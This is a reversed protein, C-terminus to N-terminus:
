FVCNLLVDTALVKLSAATFAVVLRYRHGAALGSVTVLVDTGSPIAAPARLALGTTLDTLTAAPSAVSDGPALLASVDFALPLTEVTAVDLVPPQTELQSVGDGLYGLWRVVFRFTRAQAVLIPRSPAPADLLGEDLLGFDLPAAWTQVM